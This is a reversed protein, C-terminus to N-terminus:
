RTEGQCHCGGSLAERAEKLLLPVIALSAIADLWWWHLLANIALGALLVWSLYGCTFTEMADARLAFSGIADAARIKAKALIPMGLAAVLAVGMGLWSTEARQRHTLGYAAQLVVYLSLAYLLIGGIRAARREVAEITEEEDSGSQAERSLRWFLVGASILEVISDAGFAMLLLSSAAISAGISAAAEVIMWLLTVAELRLAPRMRAAPTLLSAETPTNAIKNMLM